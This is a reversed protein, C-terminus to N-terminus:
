GTQNRSRCPFIYDHELGIGAVFQYLQGQRKRVILIPGCRGYEIWVAGGTDLRHGPVTFPCQNVPRPLAKTGSYSDYELQNNRLISDDSFQPPLMRLFREFATIGARHEAFTTIAGWFLRMGSKCRHNVM